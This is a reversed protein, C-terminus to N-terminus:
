KENKIERLLKDVDEYIEKKNKKNTILMYDSFIFMQAIKLAKEKDKEAFKSFQLFDDGRKRNIIRKFREGQSAFIGVRYQKFYKNYFYIDFDEIPSDVVIISEKGLRKIQEIYFEGISHSELRRKIEISKKNVESDTVSKGESSLINRIMGGLKHVPLGYKQNLYDSILSKGSGKLGILLIAKM